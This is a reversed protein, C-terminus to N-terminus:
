PTEPSLVIQTRATKGLLQLQIYVNTSYSQYSTHTKSEMSKLAPLLVRTPSHCSIELTDTTSTVSATVSAVKQGQPKPTYLKALTQGQAHRLLRSIM